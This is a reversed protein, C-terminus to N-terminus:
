PETGAILQGKLYLTVKGNPGFDTRGLDHSYDDSESLSLAYGETHVVFNILSTQGDTLTGAAATFDVEVVTDAGAVSLAAPTIQVHAENRIDRYGAGGNVEAYLFDSMLKAKGEDSLFYRIKFDALSVTPGGANVIKYSPALQSDNPNTDTCKYLLSIGAPPPGTEAAPTAERAADKSGADALPLGSGASGAEAVIVTGGGAAGGPGAVTQGPAGGSDGPLASGGGGGAGSVRTPMNMTAGASHNGLGLSGLEEGEACAVVLPVSLAVITRIGVRDPHSGAVARTKASWLPSKGSGLCWGHNASKSIQPSARGRRAFVGQPHRCGSRGLRITKAGM